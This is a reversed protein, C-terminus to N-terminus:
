GDRFSFSDLGDIGRELCLDHRLYVDVV